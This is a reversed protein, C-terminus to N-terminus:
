SKSGRRRRVLAALGFASALLPLGAPLPVTSPPTVVDYTYTVDANVLFLYDQLGRSLGNTISSLDTASGFFTYGVTGLGIFSALAGFSDSASDGGSVIQQYIPPISVSFATGASAILDPGPAGTPSAVNIINSTVFVNGAMATGTDSATDPEAVFRASFGSDWEIGIGTLTGLSGDFQQFTLSGISSVVGTTGTYSVTAAHACGAVLTAAVATAAFFKQMKIIGM